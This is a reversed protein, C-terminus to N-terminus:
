GHLQCPEFMSGKPLPVVNKDQTGSGFRREELAISDYETEDSHSASSIYGRSAEHQSINHFMLIVRTEMKMIIAEMMQAVSDTKKQGPHASGKTIQLQSENQAM